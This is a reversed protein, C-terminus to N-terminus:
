VYLLEEESIEVTPVAGSWAFYGGVTPKYMLQDAFFDEDDDLFPDDYDYEGIDDLRARRRRKIPAATTATATDAEPVNSTAGEGEEEDDATGAHDAHDTLMGTAHDTLMGADVDSLPAGDDFDTTMAEGDSMHAVKGARRSEAEAGNGSAIATGTGSDAATGRRRSRSRQMAQRVQQEWDVLVTPANTAITRHRSSSSPPSTGSGSGDTSGTMAISMRVAKGTTLLSARRHQRQVHDAEDANSHAHGDHQEIDDDGSGDDDGDGHALPLPERANLIHAFGALISM